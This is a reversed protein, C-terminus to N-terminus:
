KPMRKYANYAEDFLITFAITAYIVLLGALFAVGARESHTILYYFADVRHSITVIVTNYTTSLWSLIESIAM